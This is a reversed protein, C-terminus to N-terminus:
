MRALANLVLMGFCIGGLALAMVRAIQREAM